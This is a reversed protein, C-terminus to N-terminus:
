VRHNREALAWSAMLQVYSYLYITATSYGGKRDLVIYLTTFAYIAYPLTALVFLLPSRYVILMIAGALIVGAQMEPSIGWNHYYSEVLSTGYVINWALVGMVLATWLHITRRFYNAFKKM